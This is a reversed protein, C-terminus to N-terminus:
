WNGNDGSFYWQIRSVGFPHPLSGFPHPQSLLDAHRHTWPLHYFKDKGWTLLSILTIGFKFIVGVNFKGYVYGCILNHSFPGIKEMEKDERRVPSEKSASCIFALSHRNNLFIGLSLWDQQGTWPHKELEIMFSTVVEEATFQATHVM